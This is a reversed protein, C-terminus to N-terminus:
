QCLGPHDPWLLPWLLPWLMYLVLRLLQRMRRMAQGPPGMYCPPQKRAKRLGRQVPQECPAHQPANRPMRPKSPTTRPWPQLELQLALLCPVCPM